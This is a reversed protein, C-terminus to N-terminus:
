ASAVENESPMQVVKTASAAPPPMVAFWERATDEHVAERYNRFIMAPSNGCELAVQPVNKILATRYSIFSHRLGNRQWRIKMRDAVRKLRKGLDDEDEAPNIPGAPKWHPQLWAALNESIPIVRRASTKAKASKLVIFRDRLNIESWDLRSLEAHRLGAFAGIAIPPILEPGAGGLLRAIETPSFIGIETPELSPPDIEGIEEDLERPVYKAKRAFTFLTRILKLTNRRSRPSSPKGTKSRGNPLTEIYARVTAPDISAIPIAFAGAFRTLRISLDRLYVRSRKASTRNAILEAV